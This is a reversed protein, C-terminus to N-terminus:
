EDFCKAARQEQQSKTQVHFSLPLPGNHSPQNFGNLNVWEGDRKSGRERISLALFMMKVCGNCEILVLAFSLFDNISFLFFLRTQIRMRVKMNYRYFVFASTLHFSLRLWWKSDNYSHITVSDFVAKFCHAAPQWKLEVMKQSSFEVSFTSNKQMLGADFKVNTDNGHCDVLSCGLLRWQRLSATVPVFDKM